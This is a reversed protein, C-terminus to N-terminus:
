GVRDHKEFERQEGIYRRGNYMREMTGLIQGKGTSKEQEYDEGGEM